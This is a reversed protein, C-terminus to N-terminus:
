VADAQLQCETGMETFSCKLKSFLVSQLGFFNLMRYSLLLRWSTNQLFSTTQFKAFNVPFCRHWFYLQLGVGAVKNFFLRQCLHKGTFEAFNRLVGKKKCFVEPPQKQYSVLLLSSLSGSTSINNLTMRACQFQFHIIVANFEIIKQQKVVTSLM